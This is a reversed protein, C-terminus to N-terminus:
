DSDATKERVEVRSDISASDLFVLTEPGSGAVKWAQLTHPVGDRDLVTKRRWPIWRLTAPDLLLENDHLVIRTGPKLQSRLTLCLDLGPGSYLYLFVVTAASVNSTRADACVFRVQREV